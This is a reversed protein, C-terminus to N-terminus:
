NINPYYKIFLPVDQLTALATYPSSPFIFGFLPFECRKVLAVYYSYLSKPSALKEKWTLASGKRGSFRRLENM